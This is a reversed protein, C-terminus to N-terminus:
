VVVAGDVKPAAVVGAGRKPLEVVVGAGAKPPEVDDKVNPPVPEVGAGAVVKPEVVVAVGVEAGVVERKPPDVVPKPVPAEAKPPVVVPENPAGEM